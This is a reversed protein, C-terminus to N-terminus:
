IPLEKIAKDAYDRIHKLHINIDAAMSVPNSYDSQKFVRTGQTRLYDFCQKQKDLMPAVIKLAEEAQKIATKQIHPHTEDWPIYEWTQTAVVERVCKWAGYIAQAIQMVLPNIPTEM